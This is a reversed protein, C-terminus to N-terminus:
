KRGTRKSKKAKRSKGNKRTKRRGGGTVTVNGSAVNPVVAPKAANVPKSANEPPTATASMKIANPSGAGTTNVGSNSRKPANAPSSMMSGMRDIRLRAEGEGM